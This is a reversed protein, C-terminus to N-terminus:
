RFELPLTNTVDEETVEEKAKIKRQLSAMRVYDGKLKNLVKKDEEFRPKMIHEFVYTSEELEDIKSSVFKLAKNIEM